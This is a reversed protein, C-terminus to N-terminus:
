LLIATTLSLCCHSTVTSPLLLLPFSDSSLRHLFCCHNHQDDQPCYKRDRFSSVSTLRDATFIWDSDRRISASLRTCVGDEEFDFKIVRRHLFSELESILVSFMTHNFCYFLLQLLFVAHNQPHHISLRASQSLRSTETGSTDSTKERCSPKTHSITSMYIKHSHLRRTTNKAETSCFHEETQLASDASDLQIWRTWRLNLGPGVTPDGTLYVAPLLFCLIVHLLSSPHYNRNLSLILLFHLLLQLLFSSILLFDCM